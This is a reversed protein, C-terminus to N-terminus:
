QIFNTRQREEQRSRIKATGEKAIAKLMWAMNKGLTRMIQLGELDKRLEDPTFGHTANWYQSSVVPMSSITFYKNLRDFASGAGGRRCNVVAAAPKYLFRESHAYFMRDLFACLAGNASAYYVPSGVVLGDALALREACANVGDDDYVCRGTGACSKCGTCGRIPNIGIHFFETEIAEAEIQSAVESLATFVCGKEHPSGNIFLVRM